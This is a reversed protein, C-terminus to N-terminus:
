IYMKGKRRSSVREQEVEGEAGQSKRWQLSSPLYTMRTM